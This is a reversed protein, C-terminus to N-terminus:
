ESNVLGNPISSMSIPLGNSLRDLPRNRTL